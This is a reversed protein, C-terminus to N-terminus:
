AASHRINEFCFGDKFSEAGNMLNKFRNTHASNPRVPFALKYERVSHRGDLNNIGKKTKGGRGFECATYMGSPRDYM